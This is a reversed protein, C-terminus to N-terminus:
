LIFLMIGVVLIYGLQSGFTLVIIALDVTREGNRKFACYALGSYELVNEHLGAETLLLIGTWIGISSIIFGLIGFIIGSERFVFPQNM